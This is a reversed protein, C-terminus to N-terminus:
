EGGDRFAARVGPQADGCWAGARPRVHPVRKGATYQGASRKILEALQVETAYCLRAM